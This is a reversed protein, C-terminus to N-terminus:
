TPHLWPTGSFASQLKMLLPQIKRCFPLPGLPDGQQLGEASELTHKRSFLFSPHEYASNFFDFLEPVTERVALLMKDRRLSNFTNRFDVKVLIHNLPMSQLYLRTAHAAAECGLPVGCGLQLPALESGISHMVRSSICKAVLRRLTQGVAIPRIGGDKKRLPILNAGFFIPKVSQTVEDRLVLNAFNALSRLLVRGGLEASASTLDLLHQPRFGDPTM